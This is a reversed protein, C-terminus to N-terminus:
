KDQRKISVRGIKILYDLEKKAEGVSIKLEEALQLLSKKNDMLKFLKTATENEIPKGRFWVLAVPVINKAKEIEADKDEELKIINKKLLSKLLLLLELEGINIKELLARITSGGGISTVIKWENKNFDVKEGSQDSLMVKMKQSPFLKRLPQWRDASDKYIKVFDKFDLKLTQKIQLDDSSRFIFEGQSVSALKEIVSKGSLTGFAISAVEGEFFYLVIEKKEEEENFKVTLTGTKRENHIINLIDELLFDKLSGSLAM